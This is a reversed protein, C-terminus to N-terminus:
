SSCISTHILFWRAISLVGLRHGLGKVFKPGATALGSQDMLAAGLGIMIGKSRAPRLRPRALLISDKFLLVVWRYFAHM